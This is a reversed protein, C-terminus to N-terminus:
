SQAGGFRLDYHRGRRGPGRALFQGAPQQRSVRRRFRLGSRGDLLSDVMGIRFHGYRHELIPKM